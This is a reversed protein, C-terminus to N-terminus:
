AAYVPRWGEVFLAHPIQQVQDLLERPSAASQTTSTGDPRHLCLEYHAGSQRVEWKLREDGRSFFWIM